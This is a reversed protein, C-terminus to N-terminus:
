HPDLVEVTDYRKGSGSNTLWDHISDVYVWAHKFIEHRLAEREDVLVPDDRIQVFRDMRPDRSQHSIQRMRVQDRNLWKAQRDYLLSSMLFHWVRAGSADVI